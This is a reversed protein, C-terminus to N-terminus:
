YLGLAQDFEANLKGMSPDTYAAVIGSGPLYIM